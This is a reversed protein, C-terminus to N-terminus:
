VLDSTPLTLHTYSVAGFGRLFLRICLMTLHCLKPLPKTIRGAREKSEDMLMYAPLYEGTAEVLLVPNPLTNDKTGISTYGKDYLSCYQCKYSKFFNWVEGFKWNLIPNIRLMTPYKGTTMAYVKKESKDNSTEGM